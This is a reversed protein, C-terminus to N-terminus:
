GAEASRRAPLAHDIAAGRILQEEGVAREGRVLRQADAEKIAHRLRVLVVERSQLRQIQALQLLQYVGGRMSGSSDCRSGADSSNLDLASRKCPRTSSNFAFSERARCPPPSFYRARCRSCPFIGGRSRMAASSSGFVGKRSSEGSAAFPMYPSSSGGAAHIMVPMPRTCPRSHRIMALSAVTLPPVYKGIVTFFCRRACSTAICFWSGHM